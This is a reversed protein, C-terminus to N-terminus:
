SNSKRRKKKILANCKRRQNNLEYARKPLLFFTRSSMCMNSMTMARILRVTHRIPYHGNRGSLLGLLDWFGLETPAARARVDEGGGGVRLGDAGM